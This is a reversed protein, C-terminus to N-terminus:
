GYLGGTKPENMPYQQNNHYLLRHLQDIKEVETKYDGLRFKVKIDRVIEYREQLTLIYDLLCEELNFGLGYDCFLDDSIIFMGNEDIVVELKLLPKKIM